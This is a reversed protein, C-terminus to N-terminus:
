PQAQMHISTSAVTRGLNFSAVFIIAMLFTAAFFWKEM